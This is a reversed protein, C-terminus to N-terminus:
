GNRTKEQLQFIEDITCNFLRAFKLALPLSPIYRGREISNISQRSVGVAKALDEQTLGHRLRYQKLQNTVSEHM